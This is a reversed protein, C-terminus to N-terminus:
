VSRIRAGDAVFTLLGNDPALFIKQDRSAAVIRRATGVGPDVVAVFITGAPWWKEVMRLFWAEEFVDHPAIEHTLDLVPADTRGAIVGKMSAVYPDRTGFDTLLAIAPAHPMLCTAHTPMRGHRM